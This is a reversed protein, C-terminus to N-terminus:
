LQRLIALHRHLIDGSPIHTQVIEKLGARYAPDKTSLFLASLLYAMCKQEDKLSLIGQRIEKIHRKLIKIYKAKANSSKLMTACVSMLADFKIALDADAITSNHLRYYERIQADNDKTEEQSERHRVRRKLVTLLYDEISHILDANFVYSEKDSVIVDEPTCDHVYAYNGKAFLRVAITFRIGEAKYQLDTVEAELGAFAGERVTVTIGKSIEQQVTCIELKSGYEMCADIFRDMMGQSATVEEGYYDRYHYLRCADSNWNQAALAALGSPRIHLFVFSRLTSHISNSRQAADARVREEATPRDESVPKAVPKRLVVKAPIFYKDIRYPEAIDPNSSYADIEAAIDAAKRCKMVYWEAINSTRRKADM